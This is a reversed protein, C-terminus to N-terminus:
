RRQLTGNVPASISRKSVDNLKEVGTSYTHVYSAMCYMRLNQVCSEGTPLHLVINYDFYIFNNSSNLYMYM